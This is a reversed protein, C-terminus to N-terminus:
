TEELQCIFRSDLPSFVDKERLQFTLSGPSCRNLLHFCFVSCNRFPFCTRMVTSTYQERMGVYNPTKFTHRLNLVPIVVSQVGTDSVWM